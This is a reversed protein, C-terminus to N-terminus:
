RPLTAIFALADSLSNTHYAGREDVVNVWEGINYIDPYVSFRPCEPIDRDSPNLPEVFVECRGNAFSPCSNNHWSEDTWEGSLFVNPIDSPLYDPFETRYSM